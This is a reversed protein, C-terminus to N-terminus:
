FRALIGDAADDLDARERIHLAVHFHFERMLLRSVPANM